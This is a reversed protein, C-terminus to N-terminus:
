ELRPVKLKTCGVNKNFDRDNHFLNLNNEIAAAAILHHATLIM